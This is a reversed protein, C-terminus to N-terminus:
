LVTTTFPGTGVTQAINLATAPFLGLAQIFRKESVHDNAHMDAFIIL